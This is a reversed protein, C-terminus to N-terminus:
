GRERTPKKSPHDDIRLPPLPTSCPPSAMQPITHRLPRGHHRIWRDQGRRRASGDAEVGRSLEEKDEEREQTCSHRRTFGRQRCRCGRRTKGSRTALCSGSSVSCCLGEEMPSSIIMSCCDSCVSWCRGAM